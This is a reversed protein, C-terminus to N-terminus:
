CACARCASGVVSACWIIGSFNSYRRIMEVSKRVEKEMKGSSIRLSPLDFGARIDKAMKKM